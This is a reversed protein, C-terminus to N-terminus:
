ACFIRGKTLVGTSAWLKSDTRQADLYSPELDPDPNGSKPGLTANEEEADAIVRRIRTWVCVCVCRWCRGIVSVGSDKDDDAQGPACPLRNRGSWWPTVEFAHTM